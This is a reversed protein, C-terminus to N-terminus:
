FSSPSLFIEIEAFVTISTAWIESINGEIFLLPLTREIKNVYGLSVAFAARARTDSRTRM